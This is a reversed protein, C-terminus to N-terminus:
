LKGLFDKAAQVGLNFSQKILRENRSRFGIPLSQNPRIIIINQDKEIKSLFKNDVKPSRALLRRTPPDFFELLSLAIWYAPNLRYGRPYDMILWIEPKHALKKAKDVRPAGSLAGDYYLQNHLKQPGALLPMGCTALLAKLIDPEDNLCTWKTKGTKANSLSVWIKQRRAKIKKTDLPRTKTLILELGKMDNYFPHWFVEPLFKEWLDKGAQYQKTLFYAANFAGASTTVYHDFYKYDIGQKALQTMVGWQFVGLQGGGDLVLIRKRKSKM